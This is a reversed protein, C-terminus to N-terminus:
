RLYNLYVVFCYYKGLLKAGQKIMWGFVYKTILIGQQTQFYSLETM